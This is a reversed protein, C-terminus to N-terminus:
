WWVQVGRGLWHNLAQSTSDVYDAYTGNPFAVLEEIYEGVFLSLEPLLVNDAEFATSAVQARLYKSSKPKVPVIGPVKSKLMQILGYGNAAEEVLKRQIM